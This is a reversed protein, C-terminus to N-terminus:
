RGPFLVKRIEAMRNASTDEMVSDLEWNSVIEKVKNLKEQADKDYVKDDIMLDTVSEFEKYKNTAHDPTFGVKFWDRM